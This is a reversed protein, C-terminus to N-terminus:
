LHDSPAFKEQLIAPLGALPLKLCTWVVAGDKRGSVMGSLVHVMCSRPGLVLTTDWVEIDLRM